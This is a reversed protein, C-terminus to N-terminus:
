PKLNKAATPEPQGASTAGALKESKTKLAQSPLLSVLAADQEENVSDSLPESMFDSSVNDAKNFLNSQRKSQTSADVFNNHMFSIHRAHSQQSERVAVAVGIASDKSQTMQAIDLM